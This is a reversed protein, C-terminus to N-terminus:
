KKIKSQIYGLFSNAFAGAVLFPTVKRPPILKDALFLRLSEQRKLKGSSTRPLTGPPLILVLDPHLGTRGSVALKCKQALDDQESIDQSYSEVFLLLREGENSIHGVAFCM